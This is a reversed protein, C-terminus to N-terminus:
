RFKTHRPITDHSEKPETDCAEAAPLPALPQHM